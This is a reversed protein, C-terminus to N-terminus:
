IYQTPSAFNEAVKRYVPVAIGFQEAIRIMQFLQGDIESEHAKRIDKQLSATSEPDLKDLIQLHTTVVDDPVTIGIKRGIAASERSLAIFVDREQGQKQIPGMPIDFYAGTCAMASIFSWKIFTDRDIDDSLMATIGANLLDHRIAELSARPVNQGKRAGFILRFVAGMQTIEGVGSVFGVIYICGDLVTVQQLLQQIRNGTGYVNLIPIVLTDKHAAKQILGAVSDVSYGKVCVFIVDAKDHCEESAKVPIQQVGKLTSNLKLGNDRIAQLHAGRAICTVNHGALALFGAISGGVGGTGVILYKRANQPSAEQASNIM